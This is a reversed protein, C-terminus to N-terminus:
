PTSNSASYSVGKGFLVEEVLYCVVHGILIHAEQIRPTDTSPVALVYDAAEKLKGGSGTFAVTIADCRKAEEVAELVNPSEGSTSLGIAVDGKNVLARIQRSFVQWYDFDNSIATLCATNTTIAIAPLPARSLYLKGSLEAAIHEADSASGGNGFLLVKNGRRFALVLQSAIELITDTQAILTRKLAISEEIQRCVLDSANEPPENM